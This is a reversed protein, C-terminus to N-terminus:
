KNKKPPLATKINAQFIYYFKKLSTFYNVCTSFPLCETTKRKFFLVPLSIQGTAIPSVHKEVEAM